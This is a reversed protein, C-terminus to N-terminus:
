IFVEFFKFKKKFFSPCALPDLETNEIPTPQPCTGKPFSERAVAYLVSKLSSLCSASFPGESPRLVSRLGGPVLVTVARWPGPKQVCCCPIRAGWELWSLFMLSDPLSSILFCTRIALCQGHAGTGLRTNAAPKILSTVKLEGPRVPGVAWISRLPSTNIAGFLFQNTVLPLFLSLFVVSRLSLKTDATSEGHGEKTQKRVSLIRSPCTRTHNKFDSTCWM